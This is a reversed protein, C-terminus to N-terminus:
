GHIAARDGARALRGGGCRRRRFFGQRKILNLFFPACIRSSRKLLPRCTHHTAAGSPACISSISFAESPAAGCSYGRWHRVPRRTMSGPEGRQLPGDKRSRHDQSGRRRREARSLPRRAIAYAGAPTPAASIRGMHRSASKWDIKAPRRGTMVDRSGPRCPPPRHAGGRRRPLSPALM